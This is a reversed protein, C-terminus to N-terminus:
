QCIREHARMVASPTRGFFRAIESPAYGEAYLRAMLAVRKGSIRRHRSASRLEELNPGNKPLLQEVREHLEARGRLNRIRAIKRSRLNVGRLDHETGIYKETSVPYDAVDGILERYRRAGQAGEFGPVRVFRGLPGKVEGCYCCDSSWPYSAPSRALGAAVPNRHIYRVLTDLYREDLVIRSKFRGQFVFGVLKHHANFYRGYAGHVRNFIRGLTESRRFVLLHLHNGMLCYAGLDADHREFAEDLLDLYMRRDSPSFFIPNRRQGRAVVHYWMGPVDIRAAKPM